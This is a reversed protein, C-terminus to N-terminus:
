FSFDHVMRVSEETLSGLGYAAGAIATGSGGVTANTNVAAEISITYTGVGVKPFIFNFSHASTTQLVLRPL